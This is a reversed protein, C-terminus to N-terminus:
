DALLKLDVIEDFYDGLIHKYRLTLVSDVCYGPVCYPLIENGFLYGYYHALKVGSTEMVGQYERIANGMAADVATIQPWYEEQVCKAKRYEPMEYVQEMRVCNDFDVQPWTCDPMLPNRFHDCNMKLGQVGAFFLVAATQESVSRCLWQAKEGFQHVINEKTRRYDVEIKPFDKMCKRLGNRVIDEIDQGHLLTMLKDRYKM